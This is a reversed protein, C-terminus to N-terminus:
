GTEAAPRLSVGLVFLFAFGSVCTCIAGYFWLIGLFHLRDPNDISVLHIWYGHCAALGAVQVLFVLLLLWRHPKTRRLLFSFPWFVLGAYVLFWEM